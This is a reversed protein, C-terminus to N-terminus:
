HGGGNLVVHAPGTFDISTGKDMMAFGHADLVGFPGEVHVLDSGAAAGAKLDISASATHMITGDDRYLTVDNVLDLQSLHQVYTGEKAALMMWTGNELTIDGKPMTLGIREPDLQRATAATMTYPRGKEDVGNYRADIMSGGAVEGSIHAMALRARATARDLEPWLAITALLGTAALPLLWKTVTILFRRRAIRNPTPLDRARASGSPTLYAGTRGVISEAMEMRSDMSPAMPSPSM